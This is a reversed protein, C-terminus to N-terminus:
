RQTVLACRLVVIGADKPVPFRFQRLTRGVCTVVRKDIPAKPNVSVTQVKGTSAIVLKLPVSPAAPSADTFCTSLQSLQPEIADRIQAESLKGQVQIDRVAFPVRDEAEEPEAIAPLTPIATAQPAPAALAANVTSETLVLRPGSEPVFTLRDLTWMAAHETAAVYAKGSGKPGAVHFVLEASGAAASKEISGTVMGTSLPSGLLEQVRPDTTLRAKALAFAASREMGASAALFLAGALVVVGAYVLLAARTWRRQTQQFDAVSAFHGAKWAWANGKAGLVFPVVLGFFPVFVFLGFYCRHAVAWIWNLLFAGWNWRRLATPVERNGQQSPMTATEM